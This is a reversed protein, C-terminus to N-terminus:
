KKFKSPIKFVRGDSNMFWGKKKLEKAYALAPNPSKNFKNPWGGPLKHKGTKKFYAKDEEKAELYHDEVSMKKIKGNVTKAVTNGNKDEYYGQGIHRLGKKAANKENDSNTDSKDKSSSNKNVKVLNGDKSKAVVKGTSDAYNGFGVHKLGKKEAEESAKSENITETILQVLYKKSIKM